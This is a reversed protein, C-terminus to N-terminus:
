EQFTTEGTTTNYFYIAGTTRSRVRVWGDPLPPLHAFEEQSTWAAKKGQNEGTGAEAPKRFPEKSQLILQLDLPPIHHPSGSRSNGNGNTYPSAMHPVAYDLKITATASRPSQDSDRGRLVM